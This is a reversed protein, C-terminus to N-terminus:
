LDALEETEPVIRSLTQTVMEGLTELGAGKVWYNSAGARMCEVVCAPSTSPSTVLLATSPRSQRLGYIAEIGGGAELPWLCLHFHQKGMLARASDADTASVAWLNQKQLYERYSDGLASDPEYILVRNM